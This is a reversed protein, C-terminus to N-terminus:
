EITLLHRTKQVRLFYLHICKKFGNQKNQFFDIINASYLLSVFTGGVEFVLTCLTTVGVTRFIQTQRHKKM